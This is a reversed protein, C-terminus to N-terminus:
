LMAKKKRLGDFIYCPEVIRPDTLKYFVNLGARRAQVLRSRRLVALHQSVNAKRLKLMAALDGVSMEKRRINNLIALRTPNAMVKYVEANLSFAQRM